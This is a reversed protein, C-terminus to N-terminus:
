GFNSLYCKWVNFYTRVFTRTTAGETFNSSPVPNMFINYERNAHNNTAM